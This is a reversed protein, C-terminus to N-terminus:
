VPPDGGKGLRSSQLAENVRAAAAQFEKVQNGISQAAEATGHALNKVEGAVVAFSRGAAGARAAEISANLALLNTQDAITQIVKVFGEIKGLSNALEQAIGVWSQIEGDKQLEETVDRGIELFGELEGSTNKMATVTCHLQFEQGNKRRRPMTFIAKGERMVQKSRERQIRGAAGTQDRAFSFSVPRGIAEKRTWGLINEAGTNWSQVMGQMNIGIFSYLTASDLIKEFAQRELEAKHLFAQVARQEEARAGAENRNRDDAPRVARERGHERVM